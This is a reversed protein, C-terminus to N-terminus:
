GKLSMWVQVCEELGSGTLEAIVKHKLTQLFWQANKGTWILTINAQTECYDWDKAASSSRLLKNRM